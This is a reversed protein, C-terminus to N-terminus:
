FSLMWECTSRDLISILFLFTGLAMGWFILHGLSEFFEQKPDKDTM